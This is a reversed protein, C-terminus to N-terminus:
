RADSDPEAGPKKMSCGASGYTYEFDLCACSHEDHHHVLCHMAMVAAYAILTREKLCRGRPCSDFSQVEDIVLRSRPCRLVKVFIEEEALVEM